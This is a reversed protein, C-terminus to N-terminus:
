GGILVSIKEVGRNLMKLVGYGSGNKFKPPSSLPPPTLSHIEKKMDQM